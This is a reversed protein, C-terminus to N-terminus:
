DLTIGAVDSPNLTDDDDLQSRKENLRADLTKLHSNVLHRIVKNYGLAPYFENLEDATGITLRITKKELNEKERPM